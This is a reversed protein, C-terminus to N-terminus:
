PKIEVSGEKGLPWSAHISTGAGVSSELTFAGGTLTARERMTSLGWGRRPSELDFGQGNDKITLAIRGKEKQLSLNVLTAQSHKAINNFAEQSIRYIATKLPDTLDSESLDIEKEVRVHSYTKEFERCFWNMAPVIGLDDLLSPRLDSMIRRSEEIVQQIQSVLGRLGAQTGEHQEVHSLIKEINFKIASLSAAVSDHLENAIRKREREQATLLELSLSRLKKESEKLQEEARKHEMKERYEQLARKVAPVLRSLNDKLIYDTAGHKLTEIALDEGMKGTVFIFPIDPSKEQAIRLASIGDFAPLSYDSFILEFGSGEFADLFAAQTDVRVVHCAIGGSVLMERVLEADKLDDELHLIRLTGEM